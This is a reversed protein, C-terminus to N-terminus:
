EKTWIRTNLNLDEVIGTVLQFSLFHAKLVRFNLISSFIRGEFLNGLVPIAVYAKSDRFSFCAPRKCKSRFDLIRRMLSPTLVYRATIQDEAYVVYYKEFEPDELKVLEGRPKNLSQLIQGLRGFLNEAIDPLVVVKGSFDKNFDAFFFLGDFIPESQTKSIISDVTNKRKKAHVESFKIQTQGINGYVLDEGRYWNPEKKFLSSAIFTDVPISGSPEFTLDPNIFRIIKRIVREKYEFRYQRGLFFVLAIFAGASGILPLTVLEWDDWFSDILKFAFISGLLGLTVFIIGIPKVRKILKDRQRELDYLDKSLDTKCFEKFEQLTKM